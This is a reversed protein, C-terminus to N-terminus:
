NIHRTTVTYERRANLRRIHWYNIRLKAYRANSSKRSVFISDFPQIYKYIHRKFARHSYPSDYSLTVTFQCTNLKFGAGRKCHSRSLLILRQAVVDADDYIIGRMSATWIPPRPSRANTRTSAALTLSRICFVCITPLNCM